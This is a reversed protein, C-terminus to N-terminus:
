PSMRRIDAFKPDTLDIGLQEAVVPNVVHEFRDVTSVPISSPNRREILIQEAKQGTLEGLAFYPAILGVTAGALMFKETSAFTLMGLHHAVPIVLSRAQSGLFSDPPLYVWDCGAIKMEALATSANGSVPFGDQFDFPIALVEIGISAAQRTIEKVAILSNPESPTYLIGIKNTKKYALMSRLQNSVPAVHWSGTLNRGPDEYTNVIKSMIPSTVVVFVGPRSVRTPQQLTGFVGLTVTTGWTVILDADEDVVLKSAIEALKIPNQDATFYTIRYQINKRKLYSEFGADVDTRGDYNVYQINYTKYGSLLKSGVDHLIFSLTGIVAFAAIALLAGKIFRSIPKGIRKNLAAELDQLRGSDHMKEITSIVMAIEARSLEPFQDELMRHMELDSTEVDTVVPALLAYCREFVRRVRDHTRRDKYESTM